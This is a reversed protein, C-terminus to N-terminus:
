EIYRGLREHIFDAKKCCRNIFDNDNLVPKGNPNLVERLKMDFKGDVYFSRSQGERNKLRVLVETKDDDIFSENLGLLSAARRKNGILMKAINIGFPHNRKHLLKVSVCEANKVVTDVPDSPEIYRKLEIDEVSVFSDIAETETISEPNKMVVNHDVMDLYKRFPVFLATDGAGGKSHEVLVLIYNRSYVNPIFCRSPVMGADSGSYSYSEKSTDVDIVTINEGANGSMLRILLGSNERTCSSISLFKGTKNLPILNDKSHICFDEFHDLAIKGSLDDVYIIDNPDGRRNFMIKYAILYRGSYYDM